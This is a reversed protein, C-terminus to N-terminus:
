MWEKTIFALWQSMPRISEYFRDNFPDYADVHILTLGHDVHRPDLL